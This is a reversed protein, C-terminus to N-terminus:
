EDESGSFLATAVEPVLSDVRAMTKDKIIDKILDSIQAPSEDAAILDLLDQDEM